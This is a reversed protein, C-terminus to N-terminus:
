YPQVHSPSQGLYGGVFGIYVLTLNILKNYGEDKSFKM